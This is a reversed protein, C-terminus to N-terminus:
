NPATRDAQKYHMRVSPRWPQEAIAADDIVDPMDLTWWTVVFSEATIETIDFRAKQMSGDPGLNNSTPMSFNSFMLGDPTERGEYVDPLGLVNDVIMARFVGAYRDFGYLTTYSWRTQGDAGIANPAIPFGENTEIIAAGNHERAIIAASTAWPAWTAEGDGIAAPYELAISWDGAQMALREIEDPAGATFGPSYDM